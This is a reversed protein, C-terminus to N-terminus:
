ADKLLADPLSGTLNATRGHESTVALDVRWAHGPLHDAFRAAWEILSVEDEPDLLDDGGIVELELADEVRYFDAHLIPPESPYRHILAYTPSAVECSAEASLYEVFGRVLETKGAGLPGDLAIVCGPRAHRALRAGLARTAELDPLDIQLTCM